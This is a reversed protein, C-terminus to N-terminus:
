VVFIGIQTLERGPVPVRQPIGPRLETPSAEVVMVSYVADVAKKAVVSFWDLSADAKRLADQISHLDEKQLNPPQGAYCACSVIALCLLSALRV